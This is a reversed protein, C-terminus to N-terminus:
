GVGVLYNQVFIRFDFWDVIGVLYNQAFISFDILDVDCDGDLDGDETSVPCTSTIITENADADYFYAANTLLNNDIYWQVAGTYDGPLVVEADYLINMTGTGNWAIDCPDDAFWLNELYMTGGTMEVHGVGNGGILLCSPFTTPYVDNYEAVTFTGGTMNVQGQSTATGGGVIVTGTMNLTGSNLNIVGKAYAGFGLYFAGVAPNLVCNVAGGNINLTGTHVDNVEGSFGIGTPYSSGHWSSDCPDGISLNGGAVVELSATNPSGWFVSVGLRDCFADGDVVFDGEPVWAIEDLTPLNLAPANADADFWNGVTMWNTDNVEFIQFTAGLGQSGLTFVVVVAFLGFHSLSKM